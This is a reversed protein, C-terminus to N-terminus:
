TEGVSVVGLGGRCGKGVASKGGEAKSYLM